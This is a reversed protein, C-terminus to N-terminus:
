DMVAKIVENIIESDYEEYLTNGYVNNRYREPTVTIPEIGKFNRKWKVKVTNESTDTETVIGVAKICVSTNRLAFSKIYIIDGLKVSKLMRYLSPAESKSWGICACENDIFYQTKDEPKDGTYYAGIGWVAM